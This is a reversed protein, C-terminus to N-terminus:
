QNQINALPLTLVLRTGVGVMSEITCDGKHLRASERALSLGLGMGQQEFKERNVQVFREWVRPLDEEPIGPGHDTITVFAFPGNQLLEVDIQGGKPSFTAANRIGESVMMVLFDPNGIVMVPEDSLNFNFTAAPMDPQWEEELLTYAREIIFKMDYQHTNNALSQGLSKSDLQTMLVIQDVLRRMRKAGSQVLSLMRQSMSDPVNILSDALMETGGYIATLPTRLEHSILTLLERRNQDLKSEANAKIQDIRRLKNEIAVVLEDPRFPKVLYDDAGLKKGALIDKRDGLATLFIFPIGSWEIHQQCAALLEYGNIYPMSIDSVIIDPATPNANLFDLAQQGNAAQNVAYGNMELAMSINALIDPNDEVLLVHVM